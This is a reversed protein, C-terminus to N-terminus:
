SRLAVIKRVASELAYGSDYAGGKVDGNLKAALKLAEAISSSKWYRAENQLREVAKPPAGITSALSMASVRGAAHTRALRHMAEGIADALVVHPTGKYMAWRLGELAAKLNGEVVRDAIDYGKVEASGQYYKRVAAVDVKGGTDSLLQSVAAALERVNTGVGDVIAAAIENTVRVRHNRFENRVFGEFENSWKLKKCDYTQAGAKQLTGVMSKARGGGSHVIVLSIGEPVDAVVEEIAAVAEKGAEDADDLIVVRSDAFLSPSLLEALEAPTVDGARVRDVPMDPQGARAQAVVSSVAREVFLDEDGLVLHVQPSDSM